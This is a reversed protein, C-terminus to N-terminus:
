IHCRVCYYQSLHILLSQHFMSQINYTYTPLYTPQDIALHYITSGCSVRIIFFEEEEKTHSKAAAARIGRPDEQRGQRSTETNPKSPYGLRWM